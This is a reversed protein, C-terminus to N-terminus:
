ELRFDILARELQSNFRPELYFIEGVEEAYWTFTPIGPSKEEGYHDMPLAEVELVNTYTHGAIEMQASRQKIKREMVTFDFPAHSGAAWFLTDRWSEGDPLDTRLYRIETGGGRIDPSILYQYYVQGQVRLFRRGVKRYLRDDIVTDGEVFITENFIRETCGPDPGVDGCAIETTRYTWSADPTFPAYPGINLDALSPFASEKQCSLFLIAPLLVLLHCHKKM